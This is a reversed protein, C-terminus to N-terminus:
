DTHVKQHRDLTSKQTFSKGCESCSYPREGTHVRQHNVLDRKQIFGKGCESCSHPRVAIHSRQHILLNETQHFSKGCELCSYPRDTHVKQHRLLSGRDKFCKGCKKQHKSPKRTEKSSNGCVTSSLSREGTHYGEHSLSSGELHSPDTSPDTRHSGLNREATITHPDDSSEEPNSPDMSREPLYPRHFIQTNPDEGPSCQTTPNEEEKFESSVNNSVCHGSTDIHLSSEEQKSEMIMEEEEMSQQDGIVLSEEEEEKIEVKIDKLEENTGKIQIQHSISPIEKTFNQSYLHSSREMSYQDGSVLIKVEEETEAKIDNLEEGQDHHVYNHDEWLSDRSYLPRPCREPPNGNSSGDPSTLPLQNEMMVDKYLDKHGELYEWEEMSFYVTVDQCRIFVEGTLLDIIKNTLELIKKDSSRESPMHSLPPGTTTIQARSQAGLIQDEGSKKVVVYDEGTLLYLIELTISLITNRNQETTM